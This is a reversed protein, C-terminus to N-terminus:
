TLSICLMVPAPLTTLQLRLALTGIAIVQPANIGGLIQIDALLDQQLTTM